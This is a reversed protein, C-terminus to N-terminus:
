GFYGVGRAMLTACLIVGLLLTLELHVARRVRTRIADDLTPVRGERLDRRWAIFRRTPYISILGILVFLVIKAIFTGSHLYYTAGKETFYVRVLGVVILLSASVGYIADIRLLSRAVSATLENKMMVLEAFLTGFVLFAATHHLFAFLSAIM